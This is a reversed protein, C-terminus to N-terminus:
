RKVERELDSPCLAAGAPLVQAEVARAVQPTCYTTGHLLKKAQHVLLDGARLMSLTLPLADHFREAEAVWREATLQGVKWSGALELALTRCTQPGAKDARAALASCHEIRAAWGQAEAVLSGHVADLSAVQAAQEPSLEDDDLLGAPM